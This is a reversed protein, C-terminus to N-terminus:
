KFKIDLCHNRLSQIKRNQYDNAICIVPSTTTEIIKILAQIGGRDANGDMGDVEDMLLQKQDNTAPM